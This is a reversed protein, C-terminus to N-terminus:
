RLRHCIVHLTQAVSSADYVKMHLPPSWGQYMQESCATKSFVHILAHRCTM